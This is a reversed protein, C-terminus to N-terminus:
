MGSCDAQEECQSWESWYGRSCYRMTVGCMGCDEYQMDGEYCMDSSCMEDLFCPTWDSWYGEPTCVRASIMCEEACAQVQFDDPYCDGYEEYGGYGGYGGYGCTDDEVCATWLTWHGDSCFHARSGCYGCQETEQQGESCEDQSYPPEEACDSWRSWSGNVCARSRTGFSGCSENEESGVACQNGGRLSCLSGCGGKPYGWYGSRPCVQTVELGCDCELTWTQEPYCSGAGGQDDAIVCGSILLFCASLLTLITTLRATM